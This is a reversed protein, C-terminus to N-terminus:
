GTQMRQRTLGLGSLRELVPLVVCAADEALPRLPGWLAALESALDIEAADIANRMALIADTSGEITIERSFFLADGDLTGSTMALLAAIPGAIRADWICATPRRLCYIPVSNAPRVLFLIPLDSPDILFRASAHTQMRGLIDPHGRRIGLALRRLISDMIPLPLARVAFNVWAPLTAEHSLITM